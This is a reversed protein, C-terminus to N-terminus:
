KNGKLNCDTFGNCTNLQRFAQLVQMVNRLQDTKKGYFIDISMNINHAQM